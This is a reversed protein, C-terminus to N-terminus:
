ASVTEYSASAEAIVFNLFVILLFVVQFLYVFWFMISTALEQGKVGEVVGPDGVSLKFGHIINGVFLGIQEHEEAIPLQLISLPLSSLIVLLFYFFIFPGLDNIVKQLMTVLPSYQQIIKALRFTRFITLM